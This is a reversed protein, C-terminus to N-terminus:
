IYKVQENSEIIRKHLENYLRIFKKQNIKSLDRLFKKNYLSIKDAVM